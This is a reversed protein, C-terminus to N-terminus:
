AALAVYSNRNSLLSSDSRGGAGGYNDEYGVAPTDAMLPEVNAAVTLMVTAATNVDLTPAPPEQAVRALIDAKKANFARAFSQEAVFDEPIDINMLEEM